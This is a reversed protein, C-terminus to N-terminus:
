NKEINEKESMIEELLNSKIQSKSLDSKKLAMIKYNIVLTKNDKLAVHSLVNTSTLFFKSPNTIERLVIASGTQSIHDLKRVGLAARMGQSTTITSLEDSDYSTKLDYTMEGSSVKFANEDIKRIKLGNYISSLFIQSSMKDKDFFELPRNVIYTTKSILIKANQAKLSNLSDIESFEPYSALVKQPDMYKSSFLVNGALLKEINISYNLKKQEIVEALLNQSTFVLILSTAIRIYKLM